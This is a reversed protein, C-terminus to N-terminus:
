AAGEALWDDLHGELRVLYDRIAWWRRRAQPDTPDGGGFVLEIAGAVFLERDSSPLAEAFTRLAEPPANAMGRLVQLAGALVHGEETSLVVSFLRREPPSLRNTM